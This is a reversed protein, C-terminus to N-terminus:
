QPLRDPDAGILCNVSVGGANIDARAPPKPIGLRTKVDVEVGALLGRGPDLADGARAHSYPTLLGRGLAPEEAYALIASKM